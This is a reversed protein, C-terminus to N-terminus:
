ATRRVTAEIHWLSRSGEEARWPDGVAEYKSGKAVVADGKEFVDEIPLSLDWLTDSIEGGEEHEKRQRQQLACFTEVEVSEFIADGHRDTGTKERRLITCPTEMMQNAGM